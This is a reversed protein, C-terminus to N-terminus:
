HEKKSADVVAEHAVELAAEHMAELAAEHMEEEEEEKKEEKIEWHLVFALAVRLVILFLVLGCDAFSTATVTKLIEGGMMFKLALSMGHGMTIHAHPSHQFCQICGRIGTFVLVVVGVIEFFLVGYEVAMVLIEHLLHAM